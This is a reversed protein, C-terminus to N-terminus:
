RIIDRNVDTKVGSTGKSYTLWLLGGPKLSAKLNTLRTEMEAGTTLFVQILDAPKNTENLITVGQPFEGLTARYNEPENILIVTYNEKFLLKQAVSKDAM